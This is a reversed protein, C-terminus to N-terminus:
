MMVHINGYMPGQSRGVEIEEYVQGVSARARGGEREGGKRGGREGEGRKRGSQGVEGQIHYRVDLADVM